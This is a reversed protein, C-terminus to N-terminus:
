TQRFCKHDPDNDTVTCDTFQQSPWFRESKRLFDPGISWREGKLLAEASLGRSANDAPNQKTGVHKWQSSSTAEQIPAVRNAVFTHFRKDESAIYGLVCTSDTWFISESIPIGIEKRVMKDLRTAAVAASLKLCPITLHKLLYLRSKGIVFSCHVGDEPNTVRLYTVTGYAHRSADAFHHLQSSSVKGFDNPKFCHNVKLNELKPLEDLWNRWRALEKAAIPDDWGLKQRCLDQLLVKAPLTFPAAFGLSDYMSSVVSLIGRRTPPRDKVSIKFGFTDSEVNWRVGLAREIPLQDLLLDKVSGVRKSMPIFKIINQLNSIWKTLCFGGKSLLQHLEDVLVIAKNESPVSKLCDDIYFNNKVSDVADKSFEQQNDEATQWHGFNACSPSSTAGFLHVMMQYEEPESNLDNNSWWLFRLADCDRPSVHVQHFMSQVDAMLAVPEQRFRTLVGVLNNTLDTM